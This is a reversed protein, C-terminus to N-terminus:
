LSSGSERQKPFRSVVLYREDTIERGWYAPEPLLTLDAQRGVSALLEVTERAALGAGNFWRGEVLLLRGGPALLAEWRRLADVPDPLAWLVHRCLVVDYAGAEFPPASADGEVYSVDTRSGAKTRALRVMEPSLDLGDVSWGADALLLSLTGTGCGLDAARGPAEPLNRLLLERWVQRVAPDRLGHDPAEDFAAAEADWIDRQEDLDYEDTM